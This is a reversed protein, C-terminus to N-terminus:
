EHDPGGRRQTDVTQAADQDLMWRLSASLNGPQGIRKSLALLKRRHQPTIRVHVSEEYRVHRPTRDAM